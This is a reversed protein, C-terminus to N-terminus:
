RSEKKRINLNYCCHHRGLCWLNDKINCRHFSDQRSQRSCSGTCTRNCLHGNHSFCLHIGFSRTDPSHLSRRGFTGITLRAKTKRIKSLSCLKEWRNHTWLLIFTFRFVASIVNFPFSFLNALMFRFKSDCAFVFLLSRKLSFPPNPGQVRACHM